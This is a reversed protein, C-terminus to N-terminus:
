GRSGDVEEEQVMPGRLVTVNCLPTVPSKDSRYAEGRATGM